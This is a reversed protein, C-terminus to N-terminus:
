LRVVCHRDEPAITAFVYVFLSYDSLVLDSGRIYNNCLRLGSLVGQHLHQGFLSYDSLVINSCRFLVEKILKLPPPCKLLSLWGEWM